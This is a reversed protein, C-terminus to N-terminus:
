ADLITSELLAFMKGKEKTVLSVNDFPCVNPVSM